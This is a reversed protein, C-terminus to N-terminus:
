SSVTPRANRSFSAKGTEVEYVWGTIVSDSLVLPHKKLFEVDSKVAGEIEPFPGFDISEIEASSKPYAQKLKERLAENTFLLM